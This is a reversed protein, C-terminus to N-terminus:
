SGYALAIVELVGDVLEQSSIAWECWTRHGVCTAQEFGGQLAKGLTHPPHSEFFATSLALGVRPHEPDCVLYVGGLLGGDEMHTCECWCWTLGMWELKPKKKVKKFVARRLSEYLVRSEPDLAGILGKITPKEFECKWAQVGDKGLILGRIGM